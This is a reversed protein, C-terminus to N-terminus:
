LRAARQLHRVRLDRRVFARRRKMLGVLPLIKMSLWSVDVIGRFDRRLARLSMGWSGNRKEPVRRELMSGVLLVDESSLSRVTRRLTWRMVAESDSELNAFRSMASARRRNDTNPTTFSSLYGLATSSQCRCLATRMMAMMVVAAEREIPVHSTAM